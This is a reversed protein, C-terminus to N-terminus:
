LGFEFLFVILQLQLTHNSMTEKFSGLAKKFIKLFYPIGDLHHHLVNWRWDTFPELSGYGAKLAAIEKRKQPHVAKLIQLRLPTMAKSLFAVWEAMKSWSIFGLDHLRFPKLGHKTANYTQVM